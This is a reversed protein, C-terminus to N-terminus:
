QTTINIVRDQREVGAELLLADVLARAIHLCQIQNPDQSHAALDQQEAISDRLRELSIWHQGDRAEIKYHKM